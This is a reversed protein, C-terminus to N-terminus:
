FNDMHDCRLSMLFLSAQTIHERNRIVQDLDTKRPFFSQVNIMFIIELVFRCSPVYPWVFSRSILLEGHIWVKM